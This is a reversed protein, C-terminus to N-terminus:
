AEITTAFNPKQKKWYKMATTNISNYLKNTIVLQCRNFTHLRNVGLPGTDFDNVTTVQSLKSLRFWTNERVYFIFGLGWPGLFCNQNWLAGLFRLAAEEKWEFCTRLGQKISTDLEWPGMTSNISSCITWKGWLVQNVSPKPVLVFQM